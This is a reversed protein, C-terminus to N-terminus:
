AKEASLSEGNRAARMMRFFDDARVFEFRGGTVTQLEKEIRPLDALTLKGWVSFQAALFRPGRQDWAKAERTLVASLHGADTCYCPTLQKIPLGEQFSSVSEHDETFLQVTLGYLYDAHRAYIARQEETLNDWVTVARLGAKEFYRNSLKVYEAFGEESRLYNGAPIEEALTNVPMAYGFGSPGCVFCDKETASEYYYNLIDPAADCLAPSITWNIAVRGRDPASRDFFKRMFRQNYQINDGDSVFLAVYFKNECVPAQREAPRHIEKERAYVTFDSFLDAPVTSLGFATATTIGSREETYWGTVVSRGPEMDSLFKEFVEREEDKRNETFIVACGAAAALDRLHFAEQPKQSVLLRHTNKPWYTKYAYLYIERATTFSLGTLDEAIPLFVGEGALRDYLARTMPIANLTGAATFALNLYHRSKEECYLLAGSAESAYKKFLSLPTSRRFSLGLTRPWTEAGEDSDSDLLLLRVRKRNVIGQLAAMAAQEERSMEESAVADLTGGDYGFAPFIREKPWNMTYSM